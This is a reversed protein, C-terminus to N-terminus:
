VSELVINSLSEVLGDWSVTAENLRVVIELDTVSEHKITLRGTEGLNIDDFLVPTAADLREVSYLNPPTSSVLSAAREQVVADSIGDPVTAIDEQHDYEGIPVSFSREVTGAGISGGQRTAVGRMIPVKRTRRFTSLNNITEAGYEFAAGPRDGGATPYLVQFSGHTGPTNDVPEVRFYFSDDLRALDLIADQVRKLRPVAIERKTGTQLSGLSLRTTFEAGRDNQAQILNRAVIGGDESAYYVDTQVLRWYLWYFPDYARVYLFDPDAELPEGVRGHFRLVDNRYLKIATNAVDIKSAEFTRLDLKLFAEAYSSLRPTLSLEVPELIAKGAGGNATAAATWLAQAM